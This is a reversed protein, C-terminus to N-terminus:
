SRHILEEGTTLRDVHSPHGVGEGRHLLRVPHAEAKKSCKSIPLIRGDDAGLARQDALILVQGNQCGTPEQNLVGDAGHIVAQHAPDISTHRRRARAHLCKPPKGISAYWRSTSNLGYQGSAFQVGVRHNVFRGGCASPMDRHLVQLERNLLIPLAASKELLFQSTVRYISQNSCSVTDTPLPDDGNALAELWHQCQSLSRMSGAKGKARRVVIEKRQTIAAATAATGVEEGAKAVV